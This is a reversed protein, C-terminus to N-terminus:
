VEKLCTRSFLCCRPVYEGDARGTKKEELVSSFSSTEPTQQISVALVPKQFHARM